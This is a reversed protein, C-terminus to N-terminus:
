DNSSNYNGIVGILEEYGLLGSWPNDEFATYLTDTQRFYLRYCHGPFLRINKEFSFLYKRQNEDIFTIQHLRKFPLSDRKVCMGSLVQYNKNRIIQYFCLTRIMSFLGILLSLIMFISDKSHIGYACGTLVCFFGVAAQAALKTFLPKPM